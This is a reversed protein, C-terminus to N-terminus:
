TRNSKKILYRENIFYLIFSFIILGIGLLIVKLEFGILLYLSTLIALIPITLGFPVKFKGVLEKNSRLKILALVTPIYQIFSIFVALTALFLYDGSLVLLAAVGLTIINSIIPTGYKTRKGLFSPFLGKDALSAAVYPSSFSLAITVGFISVLMGLVIINYGVDGLSQKLALAAPLADNNINPGLIGICVISILAYIGTCVLIVSVLALPINRQPNDMKTAAVPLFSFGIFAYMIVSLAKALDSIFTESNVVDSPLLPTFNSFKIFGVGAVIFFLIIFLKSGSSINSLYKTIDTGFINIVLLLAIFILAVSNAYLPEKMLPIFGALTTTLAAVETAIMVMTSFWICMGIVFGIQKGFAKYNYLWAGGNDSIKSALEAYCLAIMLIMVSALFIVFISAVGLDAYLKGPLLFIGSGIMGNIGLLFISLFGIKNNKM